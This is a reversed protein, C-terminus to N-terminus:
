DLKYSAIKYLGGGYFICGDRVVAGKFEENCNKPFGQVMGIVFVMTGQVFHMLKNHFSCMFAGLYLSYFFSIQFDWIRLTECLLLQSKFPIPYSM